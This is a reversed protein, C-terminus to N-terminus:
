LSFESKFNKYFKKMNNNVISINGAIDDRIKHPDISPNKELYTLSKDLWLSVMKTDVELHFQLGIASGYRFAQNEYDKSSSLRQADKPLTFTDAHWHFVTFPCDFGRFLSSNGQLDHYFGIEPKPGEFVSGGLAKAILQSGLCIGLVPINSAIYNQILREETRLYPISDNASEPAGLIILFSHLNEPIKEHKANLSKIKFGDIELLEKLTGLGENQSNQIVLVDSM